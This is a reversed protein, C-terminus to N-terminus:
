IRCLKKVVRHTYKEVEANIRLVEEIDYMGKLSFSTLVKSMVIPMQSYKIQGSLYAPVLVSDAALMAAPYLGGLAGAELMIKFCPYREFDVARFSLDCPVTLPKVPSPLREPYTFAYQIPLRMDPESLQAVVAGDKFRVMSHVISERHIVTEISHIDIDFLHSAEIVEFGKNVMTACDITIKKGMNWNPHNLAREPSLDDLMALPIDRFAGGSSTIILKDVDERKGASLCQFIASHESDVPIIESKLKRAVAMVYEGASVLMEKNSLAIRAGKKIAVMTPRLAPLGVVANLFIDYDASEAGDVLANEGFLLTCPYNFDTKDLSSEGTYCVTPVKLRNALSILGDKDSHASIMTVCFADPYREIVDIAQRGISGTAGIIAIKKM